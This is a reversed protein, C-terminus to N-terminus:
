FLSGIPEVLKHKGQLAQSRKQLVWVCFCFAVGAYNLAKSISAQMKNAIYTSKLERIGFSVRRGASPEYWYVM